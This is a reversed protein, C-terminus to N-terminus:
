GSDSLITLLPAIGKMLGKERIGSCSGAAYSCPPFRGASMRETLGNLRPVASRTTTRGSVVRALYMREWTATVGGSPPRESRLKMLHSSMRDMELALSVSRIPCTAGSVRREISVDTRDM